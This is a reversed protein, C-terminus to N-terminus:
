HVRAVAAAIVGRIRKGSRTTVVPTDVFAVTYGAADLLDSLEELTFHHAVYLVTDAERVVFSGREGTEAEGAEYRAKYYPLDWNQVFDALCLTRCGVRRAERLVALRIAPTPLTTLVAHLVAADFAADRFPLAAADARTVDLGKERALALSATNRDAGMVRWGQGALEGLVRGAGCGIDLIRDTPRLYASVRTDLLLSSPVSSSKDWYM